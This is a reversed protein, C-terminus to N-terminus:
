LEFVCLRGITVRLTRLVGFYCQFVFMVRLQEFWCQAASEKVSNTVSDAGNELLSPLVTEM